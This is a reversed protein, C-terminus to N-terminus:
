YGLDLAEKLVQQAAPAANSSGAGAKELIVSVCLPHEGDDIFGVFWAHSANGEDTAIEATGTKGAVTYGKIAAKLTQIYDAKKM